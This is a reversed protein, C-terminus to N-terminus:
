TEGTMGTDGFGGFGSPPKELNLEGKAYDRTGVGLPKLRPARLVLSRDRNPNPTRAGIAVRSPARTPFTLRPM